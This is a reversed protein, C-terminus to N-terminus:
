SFEEVVEAFGTSEETSKVKTKSDRIPKSPVLGDVVSDSKSATHEIDREIPANLAPQATIYMPNNTQSMQSEWGEDDGKVVVVGDPVIGLRRQLASVNSTVKFYTFSTSGIVCFVVGAGIAYFAVDSIGTPESLTPSGSPAPDTAPFPSPTPENTNCGGQTECIECSLFQVPDPPNTESCTAPTLPGSDHSGFCNSTSSFETFGNLMCRETMDNAQTGGRVQNM